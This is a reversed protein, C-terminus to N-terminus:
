SEQLTLAQKVLSAWVRRDQTKRRWGRVGMERMDEGIVEVWRKRYAEKRRAEWYIDKEIHGAWRLRESKIENMIPLDRYLEYLEKNM